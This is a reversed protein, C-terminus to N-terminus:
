TMALGSAPDFSALQQGRPQITSYTEGYWVVLWAITFIRVEIITFYQLYVFCLNVDLLQSM